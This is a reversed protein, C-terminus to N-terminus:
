PGARRVRGDGAIAAAAALMLYVGGTVQHQRRLFAPRRRLWNGLAGAALAFALDIILAVFFFMTGLVLIQATADRGPEIFQPLFALFFLAVKPNLVNIVLGQLFARVLSAGVPEANERPLPTPRRLTRIGLYVLYGM